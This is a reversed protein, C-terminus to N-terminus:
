KLADRLRRQMQALLRQARGIEDRRRDPRILMRSDEFNRRFREMSDTIGLM